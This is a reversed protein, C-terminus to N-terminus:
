EDRVATFGEATAANLRFGLEQLRLVAEYFADSGIKSNETRRTPRTSETISTSTTWDISFTM